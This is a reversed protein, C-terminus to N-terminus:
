VSRTRGILKPPVGMLHKVNEGSLHEIISLCGDAGACRVTMVERKTNLVLTTGDSLRLDIVGKTPDDSVKAGIKEATDEIADVLKTFQGKSGPLPLMLKDVRAPFIADFDEPLESYPVRLLVKRRM